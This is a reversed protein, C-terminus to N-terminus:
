EKAFNLAPAKTVSDDLWSGKFLTDKYGLYESSMLGYLSLTSAIMALGAVEETAGASIFAGYNEKASTGAMYALAMKQGLKVHEANNPDGLLGPIMGIAKQQFLQHSVSSILNGFNEMSIMKNRSYDSTSDNFRAVYGEFKNMAKGFDNDNSSLLGNVTKGLVPVLQSLALAAGATGLVPGVYPILMPLTTVAMKMLTGGISKDLGDSDFFDFKNAKSGDVTFTDTYHLVDKDYIERDGLTEYYPCGEEDFKYEGKRHQVLRGGEEHTGDEDWTALVLTPRSM